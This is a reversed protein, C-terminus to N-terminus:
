EVSYELTLGRKTEGASDHRDTPRTVGISATAKGIGAVVNFFAVWLKAAREFLTCSLFGDNSRTSM